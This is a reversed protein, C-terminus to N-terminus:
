SFAPDNIQTGMSLQYSNMYCKRVYRYHERSTSLRGVVAMADADCSFERWKIALDRLAAPTKASLTVPLMLGVGDGGFRWGSDQDAATDEGVDCGARTNPIEEVIM